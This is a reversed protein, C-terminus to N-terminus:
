SFLLRLGSRYTSQSQKSCWKVVGKLHAAELGKIITIEDGARLPSFIRLGLGDNSKDFTAGSFKEQSAHKLSYEIDQKFDNRSSTRRDHLQQSLDFHKERESLWGSLAPISFPKQFFRCGLDKYQSALDEGAYGSMIPKMKIDLKCGKEAQRQFLEIGTMKPMQFDSIMVDACPAHKECSDALGECLPCVVPGSYSYVEYGRKVLFQRLIDLIAADDDYIIARPKRM